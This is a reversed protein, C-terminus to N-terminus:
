SQKEQLKFGIYTSGSIGILALQTVDFDVMTLKRLLSQLFAVWFVLTWGLVQLRHFSIGNADSLLDKFIGETPAVQTSPLAKLLDAVVLQRQQADSYQKQWLPVNADSSTPSLLDRFEYPRKEGISWKINGLSFIEGSKLDAGAYIGFWTGDGLRLEGGVGVPVQYGDKAPPAAKDGLNLKKYGGEFFASWGATIFPIRTAVFLDSQRGMGSGLNASDFRAFLTPQFGWAGVPVNIKEPPVDREPPKVKNFGLTGSLWVTDALTSFSSFKSDGVAQVSHVYAIQLATTALHAARFADRCTQRKTRLSADDPSQGPSKPKGDPDLEGPIPVSPIGRAICSALAPDAQPTYGGLAWRVGLAAQTTPTSASALANTGISLALGGLYRALLQTSGDSASKSSQDIVLQAPSVEIAVGSQVQGTSSIGSSLAAVFDKVNTPTSIKSPSVGLATFAPVDPTSLDLRAKNVDEAHGLAPVLAILGLGVVFLSQVRM